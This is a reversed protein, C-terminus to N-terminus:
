EHDDVWPVLKFSNITEENNLEKESRYVYYIKDEELGKDGHPDIQKGLYPFVGVKSIPNDKILTWGNQDEERHTELDEDRSKSYAIAEAQKPKYGSRELEAINRGINKKGSLLPM